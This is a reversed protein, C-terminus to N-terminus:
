NKNLISQIRGIYALKRRITKSHYRGLADKPHNKRIINLLKAACLCSGEISQVNYEKCKTLNVSNIQFMGIDISNKNFHIANPDLRSELIGIATLELPNVGYRNGANIIATIVRNPANVGNNLALQSLTNYISDAKVEYLAVVMGILYALMVAFLFAYVSRM